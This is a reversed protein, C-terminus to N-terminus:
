KVSWFVSIFFKRYDDILCKCFSCQEDSKWFKKQEVHLWLQVNLCLIIWNTLFISCKLKLLHIYCVKAYQFCCYGHLIDIFFSSSDLKRLICRSNILEFKLWKLTILVFATQYIKKYFSNLFTIEKEQIIMFAGAYKLGYRADIMSTKQSLWRSFGNFIKESFAEKYINSM